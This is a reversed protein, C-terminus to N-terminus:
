LHIPDFAVVVGQTVQETLQVVKDQVQPLAGSAKNLLEGLSALMGHLQARQTELGGILDSLKNATTSFADTKGVLDAYSDSAATM